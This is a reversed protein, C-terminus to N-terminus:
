AILVDGPQGYAEIQRRFIQDYHYDNGIATLISTDTTLAISALAPREIYFRSVLEAAMHQADAASGGNGIWLTKRQNQYSQIVTKCIQELKLKIEASELLQAKLLASEQLHHTILNTM